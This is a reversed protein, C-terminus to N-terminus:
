RLDDVSRENRDLGPVEIESARALAFQAVHDGSSARCSRM